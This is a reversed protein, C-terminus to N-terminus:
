RRARRAALCIGLGALLAAVATSPQGGAACGGVLSDEAAPDDTSPQLPEGDGGGGGGGDGTAADLRTLRIADFSLKVMSSFPEGTNDDLRVSAPDGTTFDFDGLERWGDAASQDLAVTTAGGAHAIQYSAMTSRAFAAPTHVEVRYRGSEAIRLRWQGYNQAAAADSAYTWKSGGEWGSSESRIGSAAGGAHFCASADDIVSAGTTAVLPCDDDSPLANGRLDDLTGNFHNLDVVNETIGPVHGTRSYQWFDWRTYPVPVDPCGSVYQAVWLPHDVFAPSSGVYDKWIYKGTYIIPKVGLAGEVRDLWVGIKQVYAAAAAANNLTSPDEVDLVPALEGPEIAGVKAIFLDAQAIADDTVIFYQYAGTLLGAARAGARNREFTPDIDTLGHNVRVFAFKYGAGAVQAWDVMGQWKSVDIGPVTPGDACAVVEQATSGIATEAEAVPDVGAGDEFSCAAGSLGLFGLLAALGSPRCRLMITTM